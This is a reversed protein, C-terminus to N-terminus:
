IEGAHPIMPTLGIEVLRENIARAVADYQHDDLEYHGALASELEAHSLMDGLGTCTRRLEDLTLGSLALGPRLVGTRATIRGSTISGSDLSM